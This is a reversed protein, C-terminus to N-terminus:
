EACRLEKSDVQSAELARMWAIYDEGPQIPGVIEKVKRHAVGRSTTVMEFALREIAEQFRVVIAQAELDARMSQEASVQARVESAAQWDGCGTTLLSDSIIEERTRQGPDAEPDQLRFLAEGIPGAMITVLQIYPTVYTTPYFLVHGSSGRSSSPNCTVYRFPFSQAVAAVAHSAEHLATCWLEYRPETISERGTDETM